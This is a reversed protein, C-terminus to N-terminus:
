IWKEIPLLERKRKTGQMSSKNGLLFKKLWLKGSLDLYTKMDSDESVLIIKWKISLLKYILKGAWSFLFHWRGMKKRKLVMQSHYCFGIWFHRSCRQPKIAFNETSQKQSHTKSIIKRASKTGILMTNRLVLLTDKCVYEHGERLPVRKM